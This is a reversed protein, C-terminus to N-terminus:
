AVCQKPGTETSDEIQCAAEADRRKETVPQSVVGIAFLAVFFYTTFQFYRM